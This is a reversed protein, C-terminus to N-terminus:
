TNQTRYKIHKEREKWFNMLSSSSLALVSHILSDNVGMMVLIYSTDSM